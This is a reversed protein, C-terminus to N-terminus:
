LVRTGPNTPHSSREPSIGTFARDDFSAFRRVSVATCNRRVSASQIHKTTVSRHTSNHIVIFVGAIAEFLWAVSQEFLASSPCMSTSSWVLAHRVCKRTNLKGISHSM